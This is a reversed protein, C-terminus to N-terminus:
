TDNESTAEARRSPGVLGLLWRLNAALQVSFNYKKAMLLKILIFGWIVFCVISAKKVNYKAGM